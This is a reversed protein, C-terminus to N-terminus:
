DKGDDKARRRVPLYMKEAPTRRAVRQQLTEVRLGTREAIERLTLMEGNYNHKKAVCRGPTKYRSDRYDTNAYVEEGTLGRKIRNMLTSYPIGTLHALERLGREKGDYMVYVDAKKRRRDPISLPTYPKAEELDIKRTRMM